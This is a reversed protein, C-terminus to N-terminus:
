SQLVNVEVKLSLFGRNKIQKMIDTISEQISSM